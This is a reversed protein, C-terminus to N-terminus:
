KQGDEGKEKDCLWYTVVVAFITLFESTMEAGTLVKHVFVFVVVLSIITKIRMRSIGRKVREMSKM